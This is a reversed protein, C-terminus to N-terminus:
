LSTSSSDSEEDHEDDDERKRKGTAMASDDESYDTYDRRAGGCSSHNICYAYAGDGYGCGCHKDCWETSSEDDHDFCDDWIELHDARTRENEEQESEIDNNGYQCGPDGIRSECCSWVYYRDKKSGNDLDFVIEADLPHHCPPRAYPLRGAATLANNFRPCTLAISLLLTDEFFDFVELLSSDDLMDFLTSMDYRKKGIDSTL